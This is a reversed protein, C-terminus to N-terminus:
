APVAYITVGDYHYVVSLFGAFRGLNATTYLDREAAGVYVFRVNYQHLLALVQGNNPNTYIQNVVDLRQNILASHAPQALWNYRWQVEHGGWGMLTPMGTFASIRGLHTYESYSAAEVIVSDGSVHTNLWAIAYQDGQNMDDYAMFATGDLSHPLTGNQSRAAVAMTPYILSAALLGVLVLLWIAGVGARAWEMVQPAMGTHRPPFTDESETDDGIIFPEAVEVPKTAPAQGKPALRAEQRQPSASGMPITTTRANTTGSTSSQKATNAKSGKATKGPMRNAARSSASKTALTYPTAFAVANPTLHCLAPPRSASAAGVPQRWSARRRPSTHDLTERLHSATESSWTVLHTLAEPIQAGAARAQSLWTAPAIKQGDPSYEVRSYGAVAPKTAFRLAAGLRPKLRGGTQWWSVWVSGAVAGIARRAERALWFFIPGSAVGFILWAQYYLKFVTNMRDYSAPQGNPLPGGFIDRLYVLECAVILATATGILLYVWLEGRESWAIRRQAPWAVDNEETADEGTPAGWALRFGLLRIALWTCVGVLAIGWLLTWIGSNPSAWTFILVLVPFGGFLLRGGPSWGRAQRAARVVLLSVALFLPLGFIAIEYGIPTHDAGPVIGVGQSPSSFNSYFPFYCLFALAGLIVVVTALDFILTWDIIRDHALWQQVALALIALGLYTPLDWGNIAYLAGLTVGSALLCLLGPAGRGFATIGAGNALLLNFALGIALAAFPLALVHAHLDALVFSFAPFENITNPIVRSPSWWDYSPWLARHAWWAWLNGQLPQGHGALQSADHYWIQAGNLNGAVLTLIVSAIGAVSALLLRRERGGRMGVVAVINTTVGFIATTALAFILAVSVNFAVAPQTGLTKAVLAMLYHGFYYYNISYGSLWPDPPPLHPARWIASLFAEDMFKETDVVAPTFSRVWAMLTFAGAFLGESLALYGWQRTILRRLAIRLERRRLLAANGLTFVIFTGIIWGQSFPLAPILSLPFWILWGLLLLSLPKSLAWGRDPLNALLTAALPLGAIGLIEIALWWSFLVGIM